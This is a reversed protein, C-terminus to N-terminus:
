SLRAAASPHDRAWDAYNAYGGATKVLYASLAAKTTFTKGNWSVMGGGTGAPVGGGTSTTGDTGTTGTGDGTGGTSGDAPGSYGQLGALRTAVAERANQLQTAQDSQYQGYNAAGGRIADILSQMSQYGQQDAAQNLQGAGTAQAGSQLAGRAALAYNLGSLGKTLQNQIQAKTSMQNQGAAQMWNVAM